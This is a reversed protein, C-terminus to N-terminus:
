STAKKVGNLATLITGPKGLAVADALGILAAFVALVKKFNAIEKLVKNAHHIAKELEAQEGKVGEIVASIAKAVIEDVDNRLMMERAVNSRFEELSIHGGILEKQRRAAMEDASRRLLDACELLKVSTNLMPNVVNKIAPKKAAETATAM